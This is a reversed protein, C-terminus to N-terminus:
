VIPWKTGFKDVDFDITFWEIPTKNSTLVLFFLTHLQCLMFTAADSLRYPLNTWDRMLYSTYFTPTPPIDCNCLFALCWWVWNSPLDLRYPRKQSHNGAQIWMHAESLSAHMNVSYFPGTDNTTNCLKYLLMCLCLGM